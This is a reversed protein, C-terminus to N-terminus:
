GTQEVAEEEDQPDSAQKLTEILRNTFYEQAVSARDLQMRLAGVERQCARIQASLYTQEDTLEDSTYDKGEFHIINDTM